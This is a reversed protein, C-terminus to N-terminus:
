LERPSLAPEDLALQIINDRVGDPIRNWVRDPWPPRDNLAGAWWPQIPRVLPLLDGASHRAEDPYPAGATPIARGAPHDGAERRRPIEHAMRSPRRWRTQTSSWLSRYALLRPSIPPVRSATM